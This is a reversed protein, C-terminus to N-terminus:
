ASRTTTTSWAGLWIRYGPVPTTTAVRVTASVTSARSRLPIARPGHCISSLVAASPGAGNTAPIRRAQLWATSRTTTIGPAITTCSPRWKRAAGLKISGSTASSTRFLSAVMKGPDSTPAGGLVNPNGAAGVFGGFSGAVGAATLDVIPHEFPTPDQVSVTAAVGNGLQQTYGYLNVGVGAYDQYIFNTQYTYKSTNFFDYFSATKGFTFGGLQIFARLLYTNSAGNPASGTVGGGGTVPVQTGPLSITPADNSTYNWGGALYARLTGWSTQERVDM